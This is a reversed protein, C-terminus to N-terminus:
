KDLTIVRDYDFYYEKKAQALWWKSEDPTLTNRYTHFLSGDRQNVHKYGFRPVTIVSLGSNVARLLFEYIFTLVIKPKLGGIEKYSEVSMVMGDINFNQYMLLSNLDIVGLEDSFQNAWVAENTFSIFEGTPATDVIIPLVIGADPYATLYQKASKLWINSYEDDLELFSFYKTTVNDVGLNMQSCFDTLGDNRVIKVNFDDSTIDKVIDKITSEIAPTNVPIVFLVEEPKLTQNKISVVANNLLKSTTEDLQHVPIIVSINSKEKM